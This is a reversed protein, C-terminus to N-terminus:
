IQSRRWTALPSTEERSTTMSATKKNTSPFRTAITKKIAAIAMISTLTRGRRVGAHSHGANAVTTTTASPASDTPAASSEIKRCHFTRSNMKPSMPNAAAASSLPAKAQIV